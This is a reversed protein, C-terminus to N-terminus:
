LIILFVFCVVFFGEDKTLKLSEKLIAAAIAVENGGGRIDCKIWWAEFSLRCNRMLSM